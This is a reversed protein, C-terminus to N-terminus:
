ETTSQEVEEGQGYRLGKRGSQTTGRTQEISPELASGPLVLPLVLIALALSWRYNTTTAMTRVKDASVGKATIM